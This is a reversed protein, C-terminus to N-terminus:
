SRTSEVAYVAQPEDVGKMEVPRPSSFGFDKSGAVLSRVLESVLVEGATAVAAVRAAINVTTGYFDDGERVPEGAHMGIKVGIPEGDGVITAAAADRIALGCRVAASSSPFALMFGDGTSKVEVGGWAEVEKRVLSQHHRLAEMWAQDGVDLTRKTSDVVDTFVITVTGDLSPVGVDPRSTEVDFLLADLAASLEQGPTLRLVAEDISVEGFLVYARLDDDITRFNPGRVARLGAPDRVGKAIAALLSPTLTLVEAVAVRGAFGKGECADCGVNVTLTQQAAEGVLGIVRAEEDTPVRGTRCQRCSRRVLRQGVLALVCEVIMSAPVAGSELLNSLAQATDQAHMESLLYHHRAHAFALRLEDATSIQGALAVDVQCALMARLGDAITFEDTAYSQVAGDVHFMVPDEITMVRRDPAMLELLLAYMLTSKGSFAPGTALVLGFPDELAARVLEVVEPTHIKDLSNVELHMPILQITVSEGLVAPFTAVQMDVTADGLKTFARGRVSPRRDTVDIGALIKVRSLVARHISSPMVMLPEVRGDVRVTAVLGSRTPDLHLESAKREFAEELLKRVLAIIPADDDPPVMADLPDEVDGTM